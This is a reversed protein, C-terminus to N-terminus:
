GRGVFPMKAAMLTMNLVNVDPPLMAMQWVAEAVHQASMTPEARMSGDPQLVGGAFGTTIDTMANGIDIQGCTIDFERGDLAITKTLGTIAHKSASYPASGPRPTHASISGNNIIRGGMPEQARMIRFAARACIFSGTLNVDICARWDDVSIEDITGGFAGIGANNFLTDLRGFRTAVQDFVREVATEDVVDCAVALANDHGDAVQELPALRRGILAVQWGKELFLRATVAGIGSGAGTIVVTNAM